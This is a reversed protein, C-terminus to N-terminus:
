KFFFNKKLHKNIKSLSLSLALPNPCLSLSVCFRFCAGPESSDACLGVHPKFECATLDHGFGFDSAWGVWGGLRGVTKYNQNNNQYIVIKGWATKMYIIQLIWPCKGPFSFSHEKKSNCWYLCDRSLSLSPISSIPERYLESINILLKDLALDHDLTNFM